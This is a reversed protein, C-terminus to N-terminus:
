ASDCERLAQDLPELQVRSLTAGRDIEERLSRLSDVLESLGLRGAVEVACRTQPLQRLGIWEDLAAVLGERDTPLVQRAHGLVHEVLYEGSRSGPDELDTQFLALVDQKGM